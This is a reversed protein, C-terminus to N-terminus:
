KRGTLVNQKFQAQKKAKAGYKGDLAAQMKGAPIKQGAPVGLSEHLGGQKFKITKQGKKTPKLTVTKGTKPMKKM